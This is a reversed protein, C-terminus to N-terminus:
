VRNLPEFSGNEDHVGRQIPRDPAVHALVAMDQLRDRELDARGQGAVALVEEGGDVFLDASPLAVVVGHDLGVSSGQAGKVTLAARPPAAREPEVARAATTLNM